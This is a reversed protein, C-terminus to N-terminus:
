PTAVEHTRVGAGFAKRLEMTVPDLFHVSVIPMTSDSGDDRHTSTSCTNM